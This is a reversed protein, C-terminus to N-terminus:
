KPTLSKWEVRFPAGDMTRTSRAASVLAARNEATCGGGSMKLGPLPHNTERGQDDLYGYNEDGPKPAPGCVVPWMEGATILGDSDRQSPAFGAYFYAVDAGWQESEGPPARLEIQIVVPDGPVAVFAIPRSLPDEKPGPFRPPVHLESGVVEVRIAPCAGSKVHSEIPTCDALGWYGQKLRVSGDTASPAFWPTHSAVTNNCGALLVACAAIISLVVGKQGSYNHRGRELEM